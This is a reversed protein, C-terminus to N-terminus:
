GRGSGLCTHTLLNRHHDVRRSEGEGVITGQKELPGLGEGLNGRSHHAVGQWPVTSRLRKPQGWVDLGLGRGPVSRQVWTETGMGM